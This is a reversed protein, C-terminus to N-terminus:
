FTNSQIPLRNPSLNWIPKVDSIAVPPTGRIDINKNRGDRTSIGISTSPVIFLADDMKPVSPMEFEPVMPEPQVMMPEPVPDTIAMVPPTPLFSVMKKNKYAFVSILIVSIIFILVLVVKTKKFTM